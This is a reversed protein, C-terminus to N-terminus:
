SINKNNRLNNIMELIDTHTVKARFHCIIGQHSFGDILGTEGEATVHGTIFIFHKLGPPMKSKTIELESLVEVWYTKNDWYNSIFVEVKEFFPWHQWTPLHFSPNVYRCRIIRLNPFHILRMDENIDDPIGNLFVSEVSQSLSRFIRFSEDPIYMPVYELIKIGKGETQVFNVVADLNRSHNSIWFHSLNPLCGPELDMSDLTAFNLSLSELSAVSSLVASISKSDNMENHRPTGQMSLKKLSKAHAIETIMDTSFGVSYTFKLKLNVLNSRCLLVIDTANEMFISGSEVHQYEFDLRAYTRCGYHRNLAEFIAPPFFMVQDLCLHRIYSIDSLVVCNRWM